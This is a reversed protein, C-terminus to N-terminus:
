GKIEFLCSHGLVIELVSATLRFLNKRRVAEQKDIKSQYWDAILPSNILLNWRLAISGRHFNRANKPKRRSM